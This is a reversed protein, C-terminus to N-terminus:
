DITWPLHWLIHQERIFLYPFIAVTRTCKGMKVCVPTEVQLQLAFQFFTGRYEQGDNRGCCAKCIGSWWLSSYQWLCIRSKGTSLMNYCGNFYINLLGRGLLELKNDQQGWHVELFSNCFLSNPFHEEMVLFCHREELFILFALMNNCSFTGDTDSSIWSAFPTTSYRCALQLECIM